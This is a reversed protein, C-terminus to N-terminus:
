ELESWFKAGPNGIKIAAPVTFTRKIGKIDSITIPIEMREKVMDALYKHGIRYQFLISDHVQACLKFNTKHTPHMAIDYFVKMVAKNLVMANLSQPSHAVYSNLTTKSKRPDGFCYRTWGTAGVLKRHVLVQDIVWAQYAGRITPYTKDFCDLLHQAIQVANWKSPLKLLSAAKYIQEEGMTDVLVQAGMNYNAGHNVRKGVNRIPKNLVKKTSDDYITAYPM